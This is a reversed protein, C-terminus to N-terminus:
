GMKTGFYIHSPIPKCRPQTKYRVCNKAFLIHGYAMLEIDDQGPGSSNPIKISVPFCQYQSM